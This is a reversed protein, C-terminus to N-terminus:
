RGAPGSAMMGDAYNQWYSEAAAVDGHADYANSNLLQESAVPCSKTRTHHRESAAAAQVTLAAILPVVLATILKKQMTMEMKTQPFIASRTRRM